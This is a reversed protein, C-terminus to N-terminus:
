RLRLILEYLLKLLPSGVETLSFCHVVSLIYGGNRIRHAPLAMFEAFFQCICAPLSPLHEAKGSFSNTAHDSIAPQRSKFTNPVDKYGSGLKLLPNCLVGDISGIADSLCRLTSIM